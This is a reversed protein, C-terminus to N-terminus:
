GRGQHDGWPGPNDARLERRSWTRSSMEKAVFVVVDGQECCNRSSTHPLAGEREGGGGEAAAPGIVVIDEEPVIEPHNSLAKKGM